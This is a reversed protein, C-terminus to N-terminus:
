PEALVRRIADRLQTMSVPKALHGAFGAELSAAVDAPDAHGSVVLGKLRPHARRMTRMLDLGDRGGPLGIDCLVLDPLWESATRVAEKYSGVVRVAFGAREMLRGLVRATRADDEVVMVHLRARPGQETDGATGAMGPPPPNPDAYDNPIAPLV